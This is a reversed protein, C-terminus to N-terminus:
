GKNFGLLLGAMFAGSAPIANSISSLANSLLGIVQEAYVMGQSLLQAMKDFNITIYGAYSLGALSAFYLGAIVATIKIVIKAVKKVAYGICAGFTGFGGLQFVLTMNAQNLLPSLDASM